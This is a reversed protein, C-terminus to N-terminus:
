MGYREVVEYRAGGPGLHSRFLVVDSVPLRVDLTPASQLMPRLDRPERLRSLTLHPAFPRREAAFGVRRVAEEVQEALATLRKRGEEVGAWLVRARAPGPFAGLRVFSISFPPGLQLGAMEARVADATEPPTDGLFRLTLHWSEAPIPRGPVGDLLGSRLQHALAERAESTLDVALFLRDHSTSM